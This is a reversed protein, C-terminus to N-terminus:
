VKSSQTNRPTAGNPNPRNPYSTSVSSTPAPNSSRKPSPSASAAAAAQSSSPGNVLRLCNLRKCERCCPKLFFFFTDARGTWFIYSESEDPQEPLGSRKKEDEKTHEAVPRGSSVARPEHKTPHSAKPRETKKESDDIERGPPTNSNSKSIPLSTSLPRITPALTRPRYSLPRPIRNFRSLVTRPLM